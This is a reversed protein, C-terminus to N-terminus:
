SIVSTVKLKLELLKVFFFGMLQKPILNIKM